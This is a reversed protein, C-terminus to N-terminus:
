AATAAAVLPAIEARDERGLRPLLAAASAAQGGTVLCRAAKALATKAWDEEDGTLGTGDAQEAEFRAAAELYSRAAELSRGVTELILAQDWAYSPDRPELLSLAELADLLIALRRDDSAVSHSDGVVPRGEFLGHQLDHQLEELDGVLLPDDAVQPGGLRRVLQSWREELEVTV